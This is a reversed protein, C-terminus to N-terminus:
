IIISISKNVFFWILNLSNLEYIEQKKKDKNM